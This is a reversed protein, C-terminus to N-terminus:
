NILEGEEVFFNAEMWHCVPPSMIAKTESLVWRTQISKYANPGSYSNRRLSLEKYGYGSSGYKKVFFLSPYLDPISFGNGIVSLETYASGNYASNVTCKICYKINDLRKM